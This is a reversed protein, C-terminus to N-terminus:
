THKEEGGWATQAPIFNSYLRFRPGLALAFMVGASFCWLKGIEVLSRGYLTQGQFSCRSSWPPTRTEGQCQVHIFGIPITLGSLFTPVMDKQQMKCESHKWSGMQIWGIKNSVWVHRYFEAGRAAHERGRGRLWLKFCKLRSKINDKEPM